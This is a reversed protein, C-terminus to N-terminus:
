EARYRFDEVDDSFLMDDVMAFLTDKSEKSWHSYAEKAKDLTKKDPHYKGNRRNEHRHPDVIELLNDCGDRLAKDIAEIMRQFDLTGDDNVFYAEIYQGFREKDRKWQKEIAKVQAVTQFTFQAM